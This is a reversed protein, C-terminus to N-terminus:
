AAAHGAWASRWLGPPLWAGAGRVLRNGFFREAQAPDRKMLKRALADIADVDAWWSGEYVFELIKRRSEPDEFPLSQGKDDLLDPVLDPNRYFIWVDPENVEYVIQALSNEAPNWCNTTLHTRGSMAAAGRAQADAVGILKNSHTYLGVEDQEADSIPNGLRANASATVIDIRDLDDLDLDEGVEVDVARPPSLVRMFGERVALTHKLPGLRVMARLPGYINDAQDENTATIQILPSPHRMGMPQGPKYRYEWGCRCGNDECRYVEGGQAFGAFVSPGVAEFAVQAASNPGKGSNCTPIMERGALFVHSKAAVTICQTPVTEIREISVIRRHAFQAHGRSPSKLRGQKRELGFVPMNSRAAFSIRWKPGTVRGYLTALGAHCTAKIGLSALLELMGDRLERRTTTFECKGQRADAYGDTDMLGQLLAWRQSESARLYDAPIRKNGLLGNARLHRALGVVTRRKAVNLDQRVVYGDAEIRDFVGDDIGTIRQGSTEGDGLWAGLTYPPIPLDAEPLRLPKANPIRYIRAGHRDVLGATLDETRVRDAVYTASPTRREVWWEHDKCAVLSAGDSFTVRYTDESWVQSKAVVRTPHGTEDFVEDGVGLDGMTSWGTPTAIPTELALAKQPGVVMTQQYVFAQSLVGPTDPGVDEPHVFVADPRIQYRHAHCWFQWDAMRYPKGRTFGQPVRCHRRIWPDGIDGLTLFDKSLRGVESSLM